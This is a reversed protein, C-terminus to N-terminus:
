ALPPKELDYACPGGDLKAFEREAIDLIENLYIKIGGLHIAAAIAPCAGPEEANMRVSGISALQVYGGPICLVM